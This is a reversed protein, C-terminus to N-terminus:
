LHPHLSTRSKFNFHKYSYLHIDVLCNPVGSSLYSSCVSLWPLQWTTNLATPAFSITWLFPSMYLLFLPELGLALTSWCKSIQYFLLQCLVNLTTLFLVPFTLCWPFSSFLPNWSPFGGQDNPLFSKLPSVLHHFFLLWKGKYDTEAKLYSMKNIKADRAELM